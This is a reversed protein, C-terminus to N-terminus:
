YASKVTERRYRRGPKGTREGTATARGVPRDASVREVDCNCVRPRPRRGCRVAAEAGTRPVRVRARRPRRRGNRARSGPRGGSRVAAGAGTRPVRVHTRRPRRRGNRVHLGPRGGRRVAAGAGTRPLRVPSRRPRSNRARSRPRGGGAVRRPRQGRARCDCPLGVRAGVRATSAAQEVRTHHLLAVPTLATAATALRRM